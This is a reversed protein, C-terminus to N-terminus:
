ESLRGIEGGVQSSVTSLLREFARDAVSSERLAARHRRVHSGVRSVSGVLAIHATFPESVAGSKCLVVSRVCSFFRVLTLDAISTKRLTPVQITVHSSVSIM